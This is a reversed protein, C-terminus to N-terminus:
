EGVNAVELGLDLPGGLPQSLRVRVPPGHQEGLEGADLRDVLEGLAAPALATTM